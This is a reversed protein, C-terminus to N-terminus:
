PILLIGPQDVALEAAFRRIEEDSYPPQEVKWRDTEKFRIPKRYPNLVYRKLPPLEKVMTRLDEFRLDPCVTTRVEYDITSGKLIRVTELVKDPDANPGAMEHYKSRPAKYDVAVYDLLGLNLLEEVIDPHSGNTDLKVSYGLSKLKKLFAPLNPDLTPEGGSVVIGDLLGVRKALFSDLEAEDLPEIWDEILARNHCYYCDYNCGHVFLVASIKGPYDILSSRVIGYLRM